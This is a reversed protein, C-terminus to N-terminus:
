SSGIKGFGGLCGKGFKGSGQQNSLRRRRESNVSLTGPGRQRLLCSGAALGVRAAGQM